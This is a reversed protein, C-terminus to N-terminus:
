TGSDNAEIGFASKLKKGLGQIVTKIERSIIAEVERGDAEERKIEVPQGCHPCVVGTLSKEVQSNILATMEGRLRRPVQNLQDRTERASDFAQRKVTEVAILSEAKEEYELQALLAKFHEKKRQIDILAGFSASDDDEELVAKKSNHRMKAKERTDREIAPIAVDPDYLGNADPTIVGRQKLGTIWAGSCGAMEALVKGNVMEKMAARSVGFIDTTGEPKM